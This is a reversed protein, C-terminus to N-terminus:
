MILPAERRITRSVRLFQIAAAVVALPAVLL